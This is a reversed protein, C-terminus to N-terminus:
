VRHRWRCPQDLRPPIGGRAGHRRRIPVGYHGGKRAILVYALGTGFILAGMVIFDFLSWNWDNSIQMGVFPIMLIAVTGLAVAVVPRYSNKALQTSREKLATSLLDPLTRTWLAALGVGGGDKLDERCLDRFCRAMAEGYENRLERPYARLLSRYVQESIAVARERGSSRPERPSCM